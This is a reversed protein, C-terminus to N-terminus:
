KGMLNGEEFQEFTMVDGIKEYSSKTYPIYLVEPRIVVVESYPRPTYVLAGSKNKLYLWM